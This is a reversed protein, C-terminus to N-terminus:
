RLRGQNALARATIGWKERYQQIFEPEFSSLWGCDPCRFQEGTFRTRPQEKCPSSWDDRINGCYPTYGQRTM